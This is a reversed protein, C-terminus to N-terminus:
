LIYELYTKEELALSLKALKEPIETDGIEENPTLLIIKRLRYIENKLQSLESAVYCYPRQKLWLNISEVFWDFLELYETEHEPIEKKKFGFSLYLLIYPVVKTFLPLRIKKKFLLSMVFYFSLFTFLIIICTVTFLLFPAHIVRELYPLSLFPMFFGFVFGSIFMLIIEVKNIFNAKKLARKTETLIAPLWEKLRQVEDPELEKELWELIKNEKKNEVM